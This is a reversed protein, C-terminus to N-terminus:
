LQSQRTITTIIHGRALVRAAGCGRAPDPSKLLGCINTLTTDM